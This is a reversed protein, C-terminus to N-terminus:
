LFCNNSSGPSYPLELFCNYIEPLIDFKNQCFKKSCDMSLWELRLILTLYLSTSEGDEKMKTQVSKIGVAYVEKIIFFYCEYGLLEYSSSVM